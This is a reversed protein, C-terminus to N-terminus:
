SRTDDSAFTDLVVKWRGGPERKWVTVYNGHEIAPKGAESTWSTTYRGSTFGVDGSKAVEVQGAVCNINMGPVDFMGALQKRIAARTTAAPFNPAFFRGDPAFAGAAANLDRRALAASYTRDAVRLRRTEVQAVTPPASAALALLAIITM